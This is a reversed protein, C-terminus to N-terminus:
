VFKEPYKKELDGTWFRHEFKKENETKQEPEQEIESYIDKLQCYVSYFNTKDAYSVFDKYANSLKQEGINSNNVCFNYLKPVTPILFFSSQPAFEIAQIESNQQSVSIKSSNYVNYDVTKVSDILKEEGIKECLFNLSLKAGQFYGLTGDDFLVYGIISILQSTGNITDCKTITLNDFKFNQPVIFPECMLNVSTLSNYINLFNRLSDKSLKNFIFFNTFIEGGISMVRDITGYFVTEPRLAGGTQWLKQIEAGLFTTRLEM